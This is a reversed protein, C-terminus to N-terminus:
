VRGEYGAAFGEPGYGTTEAFRRYPQPLPPFHLPDNYLASYIEEPERGNLFAEREPWDPIQDFLAVEGDAKERGRGVVYWDPAGQARTIPRTAVPQAAYDEGASLVYNTGIFMHWIRWEDGERIFDVAVRESVWRADLRGATDPAMEYGIGMWLGQATQGDEALYLLKTSLPHMLATGVGGFRCRGVYYDEIEEMGRLFGWNRGFSATARNEASKVWFRELAEARRNAAEYYAFRGMLDRISEQDWVRVILEEDTFERYRYSVASM